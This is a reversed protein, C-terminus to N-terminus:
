HRLDLGPRQPLLRELLQVLLLRVQALLDELQTKLLDGALGLIGLPDPQDALLQGPHHGHEPLLGGRAALRLSVIISGCSPLGACSASDVCSAAGRRRCSFTPTTILALISLVITTSTSRSTM